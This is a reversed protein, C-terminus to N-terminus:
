LWVLPKTVVYGNIQYNLAKWSLINPNIITGHYAYKIEEPFLVSDWTYLDGLEGVFSQSKNFGGGYSDQEQGLIIKPNTGISYGRKLGKRVLPRGNLWFEAIGSSSEWSVCLHVSSLAEEKVSTSVKTGGIYLSYFNGKSKYLLLENYEKQTSYSFLSYPRTLDTFARLCLTFNQLPKKLVVKLSVHSSDSEKPFVFAKGSLDTQASVGLVGTLVSIWFWLKDM